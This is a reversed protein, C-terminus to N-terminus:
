NLDDVTISGVLNRKIWMEAEKPEVFSTREGFYAVKWIKDYDEPDLKIRIRIGEIELNSINKTLLAKTEERTMNKEYFDFDIRTIIKNALYSM